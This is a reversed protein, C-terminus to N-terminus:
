MGMQLGLKQQSWDWCLKIGRKTQPDEELIQKKQQVILNRCSSMFLHWISFRSSGM